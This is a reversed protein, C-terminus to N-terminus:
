KRFEKIDDLLEMSKIIPSWESGDFLLKFWKKEKNKTDINVFLWIALAALLATCVVQLILWPLNESILMADHLYFTSWVPLQLLLIRAIWLTSSKLGALKEQTQVIPESIDVGQILILQYLYVGIALQTVFVQIIASVKFFISSVPWTNILITYVFMVWLIGLMLLIMKTPRMSGLLSKVRLDTTNEVVKRNLQINEDLKETYNEWLTKLELNEM